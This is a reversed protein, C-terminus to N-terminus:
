MLNPLLCAVQNSIAIALALLLPGGVLWAQWGGWRYRAVTVGVAALLLAQCLLVISVWVSPDGQLAKEATPLNALTLPRPGAPQVTGVLDADVRLVGEPVWDRGAATILIIRSGGAKLPPPELDGAVRVDLVRFVQRGQGTTVSFVAGPVLQHIWKFPGGYASQRGMLVCIGAQGPFPTDRRHGPGSMLVGSTTGELVVEQLGIQPITLVAIPTGPPYLRGRDDTQTVPAVANALDSRLQAYAVTQDRAHRVPSIVEMTVVFALALLAVITLVSSMVFMPRESAPPRPPREAREEDEEEWEDDGLDTDPDVAPDGFPESPSGPAPLVTAPVPEPAGAPVRRFRPM